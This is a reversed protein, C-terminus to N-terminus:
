EDLMALDRAAKNLLAIKAPDNKFQEALMAIKKKRANMLEAKQAALEESIQKYTEPDQKKCDEDIRTAYRSRLDVGTVSQVQKLAESIFDYNTCSTGANYSRFVTLNVNDKAEIIACISGNVTNMITACDIVTINEANEFVKAVVETANMWGLKEHMQMVKSANNAYERFAAASEFTEKIEGKTFELTAKADAENSEVITFRAVDGHAGKYETYLNNGDHVFSELLKNVTVFTPDECVTEEIKGESIKYVKGLVQFTQDKKESIVVYSVPNTLTYTPTRTESVTTNYVEKCIARFEPIYQVSKLSGAKIYSVVDQENMELLKGVTEIGVKAIYSYNSQNAAISECASALKWSIKNENVFELVSNLISVLGTDFSFNKAEAIFGNVIGCTPANSYMYGRYSKLMEKGAETVAETQNIKSAFDLDKLLRINM